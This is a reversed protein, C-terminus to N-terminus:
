GAARGGSGINRRRRRIPRTRHGSGRRADLSDRYDECVARFERIAGTADAYRTPKARCGRVLAEIPDM